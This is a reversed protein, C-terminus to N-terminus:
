RFGDSPPGDRFLEDPPPMGHDRPGGFGRGGPSGPGGHPGGPGGRADTLLSGVRRELQADVETLQGRRYLHYATVGFGGLVALLLFALWLQFRLRISKAFM